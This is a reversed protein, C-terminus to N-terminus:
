ATTLVSTHHRRRYAIFGLGCFGLIMMAWTSPEPVASVTIGGLVGGYAGADESLFSLTTSGGTTTFDLTHFQYNLTHDSNITALYTVTDNLGGPVVSVNVTKTAPQGDPNGSLWFGLQYTGASLDFTQSIGGQFNGNLDVSNGGVSPGNWYSGILDISGIVTWPGTSGGNITQFPQNAPGPNDFFGDTFLAASAPSYAGAVMAAAVLFSKLPARM